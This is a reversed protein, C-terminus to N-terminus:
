PAEKVAEAAASAIREALAELSEGAREDIVARAASIDTWTSAAGARGLERGVLAALRYAEESGLGSLRLTLRDVDLSTV